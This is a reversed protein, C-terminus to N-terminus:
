FQTIKEPSTLVQVFDRPFYGAKGNLEGEWWGDDDDEGEEIILIREGKKFQLYDVDPDDEQPLHDYLAIAYKYGPVPTPERTPTNSDYNTTSNHNPLSSFSSPPSLFNVNSASKPLGDDSSNSLTPSSNTTPVSNRRTELSHHNSTSTTSSKDPLTQLSVSTTLPQRYGGVLPGKGPDVSSTRRQGRDPSDDKAESADTQSEISTARETRGVVGPEKEEDSDEAGIPVASASDRTKPDFRGNLIDNANCPLGADLEKFEPARGHISIWNKVCAKVEDDANLKEVLKKMKNQSETLTEVMKCHLELFHQMHDTMMALRARETQELKELVGPLEKYHYKKRFDNVKGLSKSYNKFMKATKRKETKLRKQAQQYKNNKKASDRKEEEDREKQAQLLIDYQKKCQDREIDLQKQVQTLNDSLKKEQGMIVRRKLQNSQYFDQLPKVIDKMVDRTFKHSLIVSDLMSHRLQTCADVYHVMRDEAMERLKVEKTM